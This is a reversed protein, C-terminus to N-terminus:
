TISRARSARWRARPRRCTRGCRRSRPPRRRPRRARSGPQRELFALLDGLASEITELHNLRANSTDLKEVLHTIRDELQGVAAQDARTFGLKELRDALGKVVADLDGPGSAGIQHRRRWCM